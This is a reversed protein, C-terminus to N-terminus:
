PEILENSDFRCRKEDLVAEAAEQLLQQAAHLPNLTGTPIVTAGSRTQLWHLAAQVNGPMHDSVAGAALLIEQLRLPAPDTYADTAVVHASVRFHHREAWYAHYEVASPGTSCRCCGENRQVQRVANYRQRCARM